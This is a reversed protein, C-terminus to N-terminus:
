GEKKGFDSFRAMMADFAASLEPSLKSPAKPTSKKPAKKRGYLIDLEKAAKEGVHKITQGGDLRAARANVRKMEDLRRDTFSIKEIDTTLQDVAVTLRQRELKSVSGMLDSQTLIQQINQLLQGATSASSLRNQLTMSYVREILTPPTKTDGDAIKPIRRRLVKMAASIIMANGSPTPSSATLRGMNDAELSSFIAHLALFDFPNSKNELWALFKPGHRTSDVANHFSFISDIRLMCEFVATEECEIDWWKEPLTSLHTQFRILFDLRQRLTSFSNKHRAPTLTDYFFRGMVYGFLKNTGNLEDARLANVLTHYNTHFRISPAPGSSLIAHRIAFADVLEKQAATPMDQLLSRLCTNLEEDSMVGYAFGTLSCYIHHMKAAKIEVISEALVPPDFVFDNFGSLDFTQTM